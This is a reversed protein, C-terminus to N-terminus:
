LCATVPHLVFRIRIVYKRKAARIPVFAVFELPYQLLLSKSASAGDPGAVQFWPELRKVDLDIWSWCFSYLIALVTPLYQYSFNLGFPLDSIQEAFLVGGHDDSRKQLIGLLVVFSATVLIISSLVLPSLTWPRWRSTQLSGLAVM